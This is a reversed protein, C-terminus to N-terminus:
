GCGSGEHAGTRNPAKGCNSGAGGRERCAACPLLARATASLLDVALLGPARATDLVSAEAEADWALKPTCQQKRQMSASSQPCGPTRDLCCACCPRPEQGTLPQM